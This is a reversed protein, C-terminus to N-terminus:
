QYHQVLDLVSRLLIAKGPVKLESKRWKLAPLLINSSDEMEGNKLTGITREVVCALNFVSLQLNNTYKLLVIFAKEKEPHKQM